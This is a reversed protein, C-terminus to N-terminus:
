PTRWPLAFGAQALLQVTQALPLGVVNSYSGEIRDVLFGGRGQIAYAGAKDRPEGTAVYWALEGPTAARMHVRTEEVHHALFAGDLAVATLVEHTRGVLSALMRLAEADDTPKGLPEGDRVVTTDAALVLVGPHRAALAGAKALAIRTVYARPPEGPLPREDVDAAEVSFPLGLQGLLERRRPSASALLLTPGM